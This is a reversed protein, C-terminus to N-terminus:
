AKAREELILTLDVGDKSHTEEYVKLHSTDYDTRSLNGQATDSDNM